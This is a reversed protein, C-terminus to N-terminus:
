VLVKVRRMDEDGGGKRRGGREAEGVRERGGEREGERLVTTTM